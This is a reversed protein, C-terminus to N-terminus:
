RKEERICPKQTIPPQREAAGPKATCWRPMAAGAPPVWALARSSRPPTASPSSCARRISGAPLRATRAPRGARLRHRPLLRRGTGPGGAAHLGRGPRYRLLALHHAREGATHRDGRLAGCRAGHGINDGLAAIAELRAREQVAIFHWPQSNKSSQSRRGADLIARLHAESLAEDRFARIARKNRIAEAVNM